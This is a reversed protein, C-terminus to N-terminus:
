CGPDGPACSLTATSGWDCGRFDTLVAFLLVVIAAAQAIEVITKRSWPAGRGRAGAAFVAVSVWAVVASQFLLQETM